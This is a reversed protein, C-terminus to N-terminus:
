EFGNAYLADGSGVDLVFSASRAANCNDIANLFVTYSGVPGANAVSVIGTAPAGTLTGSFGSAGAALTVVSGNDSPAASPIVSTSGGSAVSSAPYTGLVPPTNASM